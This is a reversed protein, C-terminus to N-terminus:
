KNIMKVQTKFMDLTPKQQNVAADDEDSLDIEEQTLYHDYVLFQLMCETRDDLWLYSYQNMSEAFSLAEAIVNKVKALVQTRM